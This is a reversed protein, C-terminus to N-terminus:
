SRVTVPLTLLVEPPVGAASVHVYLTHVGAPANVVATLPGGAPQGRRLTGLGALHAGQDRDPELFVELRDANSASVQVTFNRPVSDGPQPAQIEARLSPPIALPVSSAPTAVPPPVSGLSPVVVQLSTLWTGHDPTHAALTFMTLGVPMQERPLSISFGASAVDPNEFVTPVDSRALGLQARALPIESTINSGLFVDLGDVGSWDSAAPDLVWGGLMLSTTTNDVKYVPDVLGVIPSWGGTAAAPTWGDPETVRVFFSGRLLQELQCRAGPAPDPAFDYCSGGGLAGSGYSTLGRRTDVFTRDALRPSEGNWAGFGVVEPYRRVFEIQRREQDLRAQENDATYMGALARSTGLEEVIVPLSRGSPCPQSLINDLDWDIPMDGPRDRSVWDYTHLTYADVPADCYLWRAIPSHPNGPEVHNAGMTGPLIPTVPDLARVEAAAQTIFPVLADPQVPTHLENGLEWAYIVDQANNAQVTTVLDHVFQHYAGHWNTTYFPLLLQMYNDMWGASDPPEGPEAQHNNVFAVILRVRAVRLMPAIEVIRAGVRAGDWPHGLSSDTGFVRV